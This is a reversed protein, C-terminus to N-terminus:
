EGQNKSAEAFDWGIGYQQQFAWFTHIPSVGANVLQAITIVDVFAGQVEQPSPQAVATVRQEM